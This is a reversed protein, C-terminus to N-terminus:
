FCRLRTSGSSRVPLESALQGITLHRMGIELQQVIALRVPHLLVNARRRKALGM